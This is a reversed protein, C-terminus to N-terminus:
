RCTRWRTNESGSIVWTASGNLDTWRNSAFEVSPQITVADMAQWALYVFGLYDPVGTLELNAPVPNEVERHLFSYSAGARLRPLLKGTRLWSM